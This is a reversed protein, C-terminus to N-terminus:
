IIRPLKPEAMRLTWTDGVIQLHHHSPDDTLVMVLDSTAIVVFRSGTWAPDDGSSLSM